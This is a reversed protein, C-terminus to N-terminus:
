DRELMAAIAESQHREWVVEAFRIDDEPMEYNLSWGCTCQLTAWEGDCIIGEWGLAYQHRNLGAAIIDATTMTM